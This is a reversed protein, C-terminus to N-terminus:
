SASVIPRWCVVRRAGTWSQSAFVRQGSAALEGARYRALVTHAEGTPTPAPDRLYGSFLVAADAEVALSRTPPRRREPSWLGLHVRPDEAPSCDVAHDGLLALIPPWVAADSPVPGDWDFRGCFRTMARRLKVFEAL